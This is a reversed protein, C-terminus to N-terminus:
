LWQSWYEAALVAVLYVWSCEDVHQCPPHVYRQSHLNGVQKILGPTAVSTDAATSPLMM